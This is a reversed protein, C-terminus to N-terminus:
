VYGRWVRPQPGTWERLKPPMLISEIHSGAHGNRHQSKYRLYKEERDDPDAYGFHMIRLGCDDRESWNRCHYAYSPFVGSGMTPQRFTQPGPQYRMLRTGVITGWFGDTREALPDLSFIEPIKINISAYGRRNAEDCVERVNCEIPFEDADLGLIWDGEQPQYTELMRQWGNERFSGEAELFSPQDAGRTFVTAGQAIAVNVSEDDSRDDTVFLEDVHHGVWDLCSELYRDAENRVVMNCIVKM